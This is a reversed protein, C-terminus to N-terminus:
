DEKVDDSIPVEIKKILFENGQLLYTHESKCYPCIKGHEITSYEKECDECYTIAPIKEIKLEADTLFDHKKIAWKWCDTLYEPIVSSVEGLQLTVSSIREALNEEALKGLTDIIHFVVGLEHM